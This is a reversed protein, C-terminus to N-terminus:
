CSLAGRRIGDERVFGDDIGSPVTGDLGQEQFSKGGGGRILQDLGVSIGVASADNLIQAIIREAALKVAIQRVVDPAAVENQVQNSIRLVEVFICERQARQRMVRSVIIAMAHGHVDRHRQEVRLEANFNPFHIM